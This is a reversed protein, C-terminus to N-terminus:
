GWVWIYSLFLNVIITYCLVVWIEMLFFCITLRTEKECEKSFCFFFCLVFNLFFFFRTWPTLHHLPSLLFIITRKMVMSMAKADHHPGMASPIETYESVWDIFPADGLLYRRSSGSAAATTTPHTFLDNVHVSSKRHRDTSNQKDASSKRHKEFYPKPNIPLQSSCPVHPQNKRRDHDYSKSSRRRVVSGHDMSYTVIATSAPSSCFLDMGKM